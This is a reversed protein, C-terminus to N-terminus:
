KAELFVLRQRGFENLIEDALWRGDAESLGLIDLIPDSNYVEGRAIVPQLNAWVDGLMDAPITATGDLTPLDSFEPEGGRRALPTLSVVREQGRRHPQILGRQEFEALISEAVLIDSHDSSAKAGLLRYLQDANELPRGEKLHQEVSSWVRSLAEATVVHDKGHLYLPLDQFEPTTYGDRLVFSPVTSKGLGLHRLYGQLKPLSKVRALDAPSMQKLTRLMAETPDMANVSPVIAPVRLQGETPPAKAPAGNWAIFGREEWEHLLNTYKKILEDRTTSTWTGSYEGIPRMVGDVLEQVSRVDNSKIIRWLYDNIFLDDSGPSSADLPLSSPHESLKTKFPRFKQVLKGRRNLGETVYATFPNYPVSLKFGTSNAVSATGVPRLIPGFDSAAALRHTEEYRDYLAMRATYEEFDINDAEYELRAIDRVQKIRDLGGAVFRDKLQTNFSQLRQFSSADEITEKFRSLDTLPASAVGLQEAYRARAVMEDIPAFDQPYLEDKDELFETGDDRTDVGRVGPLTAGTTLQITDELFKLRAETLQSENLDDDSQYILPAVSLAREFVRRPRNFDKEYNVNLITVDIPQPQNVRTVRRILQLAHSYTYPEEMVVMRAAHQLNLGVGGAGVALFGVKLKGQNIDRAFADRDMAARRDSLASDGDGKLEGIVARPIGEEILRNRLMEFSGVHQSAIIIAKESDVPHNLHKKIMDVVAEIKPSAFDYEPALRSGYVLKPHLLLKQVMNSIHLASRAPDHKIDEWRQPLVLKRPKYRYRNQSVDVTFTAVSGDPNRLPVTNGEEDVTLKAYQLEKLHALVQNPYKVEDAYEPNIENALQRRYAKLRRLNTNDAKEMAFFDDHGALCLELLERMAKPMPLYMRSVKASPVSMGRSAFEEKVSPELLSRAYVLHMLDKSARNYFPANLLERKLLGTPNGDTDFTETEVLTGLKKSAEHLSEPVQGPALTELMHGLDEPKNRAPSASMFHVRKRGAIIERIIMSGINDSHGLGYAESHCEDFIMPTTPDIEIFAKILPDDKILLGMKHSWEEFPMDARRRANNKEDLVVLGADEMRRRLDKTGRLLSAGIFVHRSDSSPDALAQISTVLEQTTAGLDSDDLPALVKIGGSPVWELAERPFQELGQKTVFYIAAKAEKKEQLAEAYVVATASKGMGGDLAVLSRPANLMFNVARTQFSFLQRGNRATRELVRAPLKFEAPDAKRAALATAVRAAHERVSQVASEAADTDSSFAEDLRTMGAAFAQVLHYGFTGTDQKAHQEVLDHFAAGSKNIQQVLAKLDEPTRREEPLDAFHKALLFELGHDQTIVGLPDRVWRDDSGEWFKEPDESWQAFQDTGPAFVSVFDSKPTGDPKLFSAVAEDAESGPHRFRRSRQLAGLRTLIALVMGVAPHGQDTGAVNTMYRAYTDVYETAITLEGIRSMQERISATSGTLPDFKDLEDVTKPFHVMGLQRGIHLIKLATLEPKEGSLVSSALDDLYPRITALRLRITEDSVSLMNTQVVQAHRIDQSTQLEQYPAGFQEFHSDAQEEWGEPLSGDPGAVSAAYTLRWAEEPAIGLREAAAFLRPLDGIHNLPTRLKAALLLGLLGSGQPVKAGPNGLALDEVQEPTLLGALKAANLSGFRGVEAFSFLARADQVVSVAPGAAPFTRASLASIGTAPLVASDTYRGGGSVLTGYQVYGNKDRYWTGGYVGPNNVIRQGSGAVLHGGADKPQDKEPRGPPNPSLEGAAAKSLDLTYIRDAM